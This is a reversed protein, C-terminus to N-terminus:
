DYSRYVAHGASVMADSLPVDDGGRFVEGLYRGRAGKKSKFPQKSSQKITRVTVERNALWGIVWAKAAMGKHWEDSGKKVGYTEPADIRNLRIREPRWTAMGLDLVFDITDADVMEFSVARYCYLMTM